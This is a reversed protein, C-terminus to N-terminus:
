CGFVGVRRKISGFIASGLALGNENLIKIRRHRHLVAKFGVGHQGSSKKVEWEGYDFLIVASVDPEPTYAQM